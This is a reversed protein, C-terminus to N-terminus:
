SIVAPSCSDPKFSKHSLPIYNQIFIGKFSNNMKFFGEPEKM